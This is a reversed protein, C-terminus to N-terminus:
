WEEPSHGLTCGMVYSKGQPCTWIVVAKANGQTGEVLPVVGDVIYHNNYLETPLTEFGEKLRATAPHDSVKHLVIPRKPGHRVSAVGTFDGYVPFPEDGHAKRWEAVREPVAKVKADHGDGLLDSAGRKYTDWWSHMSCHILLAPVGHERTQRIVNACSELDPTEAFCYNYIIADFGKAFDPNQMKHLVEDYTGTMVTLEWGAPGAIKNKFSALQPTYKHYQGPEHTVYLVKGDAGCVEAAWFGSAAMVVVASLLRFIQTKM